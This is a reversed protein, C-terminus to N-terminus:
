GSALRQAYRRLYDIVEEADTMQFVEQRVSHSSPMGKLYWGIHKRMERVGREEGYSKMAMDFHKMCIRIRETYSPDCGSEGADLYRNIRDFLWPKGLAGRGVMVLDCGTEDLMRRADEPHLIDGNGIVPISVSEKVDRILNWDAQGGFGMKQTRPHLTVM